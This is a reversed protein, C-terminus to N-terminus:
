SLEMINKHELLEFILDYILQYIMEHIGLGLGFAESPRLLRMPRASPIAGM